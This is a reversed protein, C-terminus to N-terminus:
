LVARRRAVGRVLGNHGRFGVGGLVAEGGGGEGDDAEFVEVFDFVEFGVEEGDVLGGVRLLDEGDLAQGEGLLGEETDGAEFGAEHGGGHVFGEVGVSLGPDGHALFEDAGAVDFDDFGLVAVEGQGDTEVAHDAAGVDPGEKETVLGLGLAM